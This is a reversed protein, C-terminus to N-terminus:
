PQHVHVCACACAAQMMSRPSLLLLHWCVKLQQILKKWVAKPQPPLPELKVLLERISDCLSEDSGAAASSSGPQQQRLLKVAQEWLGVASSAAMLAPHRTQWLGPLVLLSVLNGLVIFSHRHLIM